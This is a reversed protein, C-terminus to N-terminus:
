DRLVARREVKQGVKQGVERGARMEVWRWAGLGAFAVWGVWVAAVRGPTLRSGDRLGSLARSAVQATTKASTSPPMRRATYHCFLTSSTALLGLASLPALPDAIKAQLADSRLHM